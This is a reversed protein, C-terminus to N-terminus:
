IYTNKVKIIYFGIIYLLLVIINVQYYVHLKMLTSLLSTSILNNKFRKKRSTYNNCKLYLKRKHLM